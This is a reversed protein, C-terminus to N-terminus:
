LCPSAPPPPATSLALWPRRCRLAQEFAHPTSHWTLPSPPFPAVLRPLSCCAVISQWQHQTRHQSCVLALPMLLPLPPPRHGMCVFSLRVRQARPQSLVRAFFGAQWLAGGAVWRRCSCARPGRRARARPRAGARARRPRSSSSSRPRARPSSRLGCPRRRVAHPGPHDAPYHLPAASTPFRACCRWRPPAAGVRKARWCAWCGLRSRRWGVGATGIRAARWQQMSRQAASRRRLTGPGVQPEPQELAEKKKLSLQFRKSKLDLEVIDTDHVM